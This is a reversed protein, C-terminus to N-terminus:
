LPRRAAVLLSGDGALSQLATRIGRTVKKKLGGTQGAGRLPENPLWIFGGFGARELLRLLGPKRFFHLHSPTSLLAGALRPVRCVLDVTKTTVLPVKVVVHGGPKILSFARTLFDVPNPLHECVDWFTVLDFPARDAFDFTLFDGSQAALGRGRCMQAAAESFDLGYTRCGREAAAALFEGNGCGVDLVSAGAPLLPLLSSDIITRIKNAFVADERFGSYHEGYHTELAVAGEFMWAFDHGCSLCRMLPM